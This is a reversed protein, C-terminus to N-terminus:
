RHTLQRKPAVYESPLRLQWDMRHSALRIAVEAIVLVYTVWLVPYLHVGFIEASWVAGSLLAILFGFAFFRDDTTGLWFSAGFLSICLVRALMAVSSVDEVAHALPVTLLLAAEVLFYFFKPM